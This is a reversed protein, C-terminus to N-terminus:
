PIVMDMVAIVADRWAAKIADPLDAWEPRPEGRFNKGGTSEGYASYAKQAIAEIDPM